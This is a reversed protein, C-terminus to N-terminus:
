FMANADQSRDYAVFNRILQLIPEYLEIPLSTRKNFFTASYMYSCVQTEKIFYSTKFILDEVDILDENSQVQIPILYSTTNLIEQAQRLTNGSVMDTDIITYVNRLRPRTDGKVITGVVDGNGNFIRSIQFYECGMRDALYRDLSVLNLTDRDFQLKSLKCDNITRVKFSTENTILDAISKQLPLLEPTHCRVIISDKM